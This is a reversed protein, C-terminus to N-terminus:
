TKNVVEAPFLCVLTSVSLLQRDTFPPHPRGTPKVCVCVCLCAENKAASQCVNTKGLLTSVTKAFLDWM